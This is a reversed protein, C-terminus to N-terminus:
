LMPTRPLSLPAISSCPPHAIYEACWGGFQELQALTTYLAYVIMDAIYKHGLANPHIMSHADNPPYATSVDSFIGEGRHFAHHLGPPTAATHTHPPHSPGSSTHPTSRRDHMRIPLRLWLAWRARVTACPWRRCAM